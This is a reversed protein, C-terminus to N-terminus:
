PEGPWAQLDRQLTPDEMYNQLGKLLDARLPHLEELNKKRLDADIVGRSELFRLWAPVVEFLAAATHYQANLFGLLCALHVDLTVREFCLPHIPKPPPPLKKNPHVARELMGPRPDLDGEHRRVFYDLLHHRVLEGKSYPVGEERRLYGVFQNILRSLNHAGPAPPEEEEEKSDDWDDRRKKRPPQLNFDATKWAPVDRGVLDNVFREVYELRPEPIFFRVRDLLAPSTPDAVPTHELYDFIEYDVGEEAFEAIGWPLIDSSTQVDPWALRM